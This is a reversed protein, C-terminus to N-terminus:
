FRASFGNPGLAKDPNLQFVVAKIKKDTMNCILWSAADAILLKKIVFKPFVIRNRSQNYNEKFYRFQNKSPMNSDVVGHVSNITFRM